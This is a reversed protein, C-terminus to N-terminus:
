LKRGNEKQKRIPYFLYLDTENYRIPDIDDPALIGGQTSTEDGKNYILKILNLYVYIGLATKILISMFGGLVTQHSNGQENFNMTIVHGFMDYKKVGQMMAKQKSM